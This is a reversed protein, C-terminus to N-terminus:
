EGQGGEKLKVWGYEVETGDGLYYGKSILYCFDKYTLYGEKRGGYGNFTAVWHHNYDNPTFKIDVNKFGVPFNFGIAKADEESIQSLPTLKLYQVYEINESVVDWEHPEENPYRIVALNPKGIVDYYQAVFRIKNVPTNEIKNM